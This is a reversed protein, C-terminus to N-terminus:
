GSTEDGLQQLSNVIPELSGQVDVKLLFSDRICMESDL